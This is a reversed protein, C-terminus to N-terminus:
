SGSSNSRLASGSLAEALATLVDFNRQAADALRTAVQQREAARQQRTAWLDDVEQILCETSLEDLNVTPQDATRAFRAVKPDYSIGLAPVASAAALILGHLRMSILLDLSSIVGLIERPDTVGHLVAAGGSATALQCAVPADESPQFPILLVQANLARRLHGILPVVTEVLGEELGGRLSLGVVPAHMSLGCNRLLHETRETPCPALLMAPDATVQAPPSTVGLEDELFRVSQEDRLTIAAASRFASATLRRILRRRLPGLGQAFIMSPTGARRALALVGLYYLPSLASTSDQILGGGGSILLDAARLQRWVDRLSWRQVARVTYQATTHQPNGSLVVIEADPLRVQVRDLIAALIAEDGVNGFGYYGSIVLRM